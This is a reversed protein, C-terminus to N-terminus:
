LISTDTFRDAEKVAQASHALQKTKTASVQDRASTINYKANNGAGPM